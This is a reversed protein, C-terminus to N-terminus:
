PPISVHLLFVRVEGLLMVHEPLRHALEDLSLHSREDIFPLLVFCIGHVGELLHALRAVEAHPHRFFVASAARVRKSSSMLLPDLPKRVATPTWM